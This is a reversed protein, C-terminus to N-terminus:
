ADPPAADPPGADIPAADINSADPPAPSDIRPAADAPHVAGTCKGNTSCTLGSECDSDIQCRDGEGQKCGAAAALALALACLISSTFSRM